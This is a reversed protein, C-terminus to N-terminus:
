IPPVPVTFGKCFATASTFTIEVTGGASYPCEAPPTIETTFFLPVLSSCPIPDQYPRVRRMCCRKYKSLNLVLWGESVRGFPTIVKKM